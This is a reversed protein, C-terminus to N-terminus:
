SMRYDYKNLAKIVRSMLNSYHCKNNSLGLIKSGHKNYFHIQIVCFPFYIQSQLNQIRTILSYELIYVEPSIYYFKLYNM